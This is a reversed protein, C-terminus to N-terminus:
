DKKEFYKLIQDYDYEEAWRSLDQALNPTAEGIKEITVFMRNIDAQVVAQKLEAILQPSIKEKGKLETIDVATVPDSEKQPEYLFEINLHLAMLEFLKWEHFPKRMFDDCGAALVLAREEDFASATLAIIKTKPGDKDDKIIRTAEYGDMVPMRMEMWVLHPAWSRWIAVAEKGNVAEKVVFGVGALLKSLLKCNDPKDDVVLIRSDPQGPKLGLVRRAPKLETLMEAGSEATISFSFRSGKGPESEAAIEGGMLEVFGKSVSLGLGTGEQSDRGTKSQIFAEFLGDMEESAIGQGEDEIEFHLKIRKEDRGEGGNTIQKAKLSVAGNDAFKIANSLLNIIIQRLKVDDAQIFRPLNAEKFFNLSLGKTDVKLKFLDELDDLLAYLDFNRIELTMRGSEIKSLELVQNILDLLHEGSRSIINLNQTQEPDMNGARVMLQSFGIVANLPTRLEHSMNALFSSKAQNAIEAQEKAELLDETRKQVQEELEDRHKLLAEEAKKRTTIDTVTGELYRVVGKEDKVTRANFSVHIISKDKRVVPAEFDHVVGHESIEVLFRERDKQKAYLQTALNSISAVMENPSAYGLIRALAPNVGVILGESTTQFIGESANDYIDKYKKESLRRSKVNFILLLILSFMMSFIILIAWVYTKYTDYFSFPVNLVLSDPPLDSRELNYKVLASYDFIFQNAGVKSVPISDVDEGALIRKGIKCMVKGQYYGSVVKGGVVGDRLNFNLLCFVPVPCDKMLTSGLKEFTFYSQNRDSFYVGFLIVTGDKFSHIKRQLEEITLNKNHTLKIRSEFEALNKRITKAWARGSKLYDNVIYIEKTYPKLKLIAEVTERSSMIEAVGTFKDLGAIQEDKFNNVGCFCVPTHLFLDDRHQRLFDFAHNDSSLILSFPINKYKLKYTEYLLQFYEPSHQRKTDMYESHLVLNQGAPDLVEYIAKEINNVWTMDSHYSHLLFVHRSAKNAFVTQYLAFILFLALVLGTVLIKTNRRCRNASTALLKKSNM